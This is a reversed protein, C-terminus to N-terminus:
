VNGTIKEGKENLGYEQMMKQTEAEIEKESWGSKRLYEKILNHNYEFGRSFDFEPFDILKAINESM